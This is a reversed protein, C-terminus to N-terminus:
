CCAKPCSQCLVLFKLLEAGAGLEKLKAIDDKTLNLPGSDKIMMLVFKDEAKQQKMKLLDDKDLGLAVSAVLTLFLVVLLSAIRRVGTRGIPYARQRRTQTMVVRLLDM